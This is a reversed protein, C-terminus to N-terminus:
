RRPGTQFKVLPASHVRKNPEPTVTKDEGGDLGFLESFSTMFGLLYASANELREKASVDGSFPLFVIEDQTVRVYEKDGMISPHSFRSSKRFCKDYERLLEGGAAKAMDRTAKGSWTVLAKDSVVNYTKKFEQAKKTVLDFRPDQRDEGMQRKLIVWKYDVFRAAKQDATKPDSLIYRAFVLGELMGRLLASADQGLGEKCLLMVSQFTKIAKTFLFLFVRKAPPLSNLRYKKANFRELLLGVQELDM